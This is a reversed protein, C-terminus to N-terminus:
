VKKILFLNKCLFLDSFKIITIKDKRGARQYWNYEAESATDVKKNGNEKLIRLVHLLLEKRNVFLFHHPQEFCIFESKGLLWGKEGRVNMLEVWIKESQTSTDSRNIKKMSKLDVGFEGGGGNLWYDVHDYMDEKDDSFRWSYGQHKIANQFQINSEAELDLCSNNM